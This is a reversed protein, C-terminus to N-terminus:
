HTGTRNAEIAANIYSWRIAKSPMKEADRQTKENQSAANELTIRVNQQEREGSITGNRELIPRHCYFPRVWVNTVEM